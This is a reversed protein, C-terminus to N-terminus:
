GPMGSLRSTPPLNILQQQQQQKCRKSPASCFCDSSHCEADRRLRLLTTRLAADHSPGLTAKGVTERVTRQTNTSYAPKLWRSQHVRHYKSVDVDPVCKTCDAGPASFRGFDRLHKSARPLYKEVPLRPFNPAFIGKCKYL